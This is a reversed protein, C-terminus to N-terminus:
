GFEQNESLKSKENFRLFENSGNLTRNELISRVLIEFYNHWDEM